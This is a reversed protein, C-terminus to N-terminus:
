GRKGRTMYRKPEFAPQATAPAVDPPPFPRENQADGDKLLKKALEDSLVADQGKRWPRMDRTLTVIKM